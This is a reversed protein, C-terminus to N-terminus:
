ENFSVEKVDDDDDDDDNQIIAGKLDNVDFPKKLFVNAGSKLAVEKKEIDASISVIHISSYAQKARINKIVQIGDIDPMVIDVIIIEPIQKGISILADTGSYFSILEFGEINKFIQKFFDHIGEEDDVLYVLKKSLLEKPIQYNHSKLFKIVEKYPIKRHGGPTLIADIQGDDVWNIVSGVVVHLIKAMDSTTYYEKRKM